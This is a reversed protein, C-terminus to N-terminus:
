AQWVTWGGLPLIRVEPSSPHAQVERVFGALDNTPIQKAPAHLPRWFQDWHCPIVLKPQLADLLRPVFNPTAHRGITCALVVDASIGRLEADRLGASGIHYLSGSVASLHLGFVEGVRWRTYRAPAAFPATIRGPLPVQGAFLPSHASKVARLVFPGQAFTEGDGALEHLQAEPVQEGRCYNLVDSSGYVQAGYLKAIAPTDLAHDFHAHGVAVAHAADVSAGIRDLDPAIPGTVLQLLTHRSLHPDLWFHHEGAVVRFGATGLWQVALGVPLVPREAVHFCQPDVYTSLRSLM